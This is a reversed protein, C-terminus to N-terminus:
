LWPRGSMEGQSISMEQGFVVKSGQGGVYEKRTGQVETFAM